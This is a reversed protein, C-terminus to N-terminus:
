EPAPSIKMWKYIELEIDIVREFYVRVISMPRNGCQLISQFWLFWMLFSLKDFQSQKCSNHYHYKLFLFICVSFAFFSSFSMIVVIIIIIVTTAIGSLKGLSLFFFGDTDGGGGVVVVFSIGIRQWKKLLTYCLYNDLSFYWLINRQVSINHYSSYLKSPTSCERYSCCQMGTAAVLSFLCYGFLLM